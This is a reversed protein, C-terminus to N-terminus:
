SRECQANGLLNPKEPARVKRLDAKALGCGGAGVKEGPKNYLFQVMKRSFDLITNGVNANKKVPMVFRDVGHESFHRTPRDCKIYNRFETM